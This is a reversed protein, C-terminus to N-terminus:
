KAGGRLHLARAAVHSGLASTALTLLWLLAVKVTRPSAGEAVVSAAVLAAGSAVTVFAVAHLRSLADPLRVFAAAGLWAAAVALALLVDVAM